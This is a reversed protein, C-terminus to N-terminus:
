EILISTFRDRDLYRYYVVNACVYNSNIQHLGDGIFVIDILVHGTRSQIIQAVCKM